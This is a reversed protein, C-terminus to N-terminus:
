RPAPKARRGGRLTFTCHYPLSVGPALARTGGLIAIVAWTLSTSYRGAVQPTSTIGAVQHGQDLGVLWRM